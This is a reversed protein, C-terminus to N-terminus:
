NVAIFEGTVPNFKAAKGKLKPTTYNILVWGKDNFALTNISYADEITHSFIIKETELSYIHVTALDDPYIFAFYPSSFAPDWSVGKVMTKNPDGIKIIDDEYDGYWSEIFLTDGDWWVNSAIGQYVLTEAGTVLDKEWLQGNYDIWSTTDDHYPNYKGDRTSKFTFKTYDKNFVPEYAWKCDWIKIDEWDYQGWHNNMLPLIEFKDLDLKYLSGKYTLIYQNSDGMPYAFINNQQYLFQRHGNEKENYTIPLETEDWGDLGFPINVTFVSRPTTPYPTPAPTPTPVITIPGSTTPKPTPTPTAPPSVEPKDTCAALTLLLIALITLLKKM